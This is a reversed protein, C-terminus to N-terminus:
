GSIPNETDEQPFDYTPISNVIKQIQNALETSSNILDSMNSQQLIGDALAKEHKDRIEILSQYFAYSDIDDKHKEKFKTIDFYETDLERELDEISSMIKKCSFNM